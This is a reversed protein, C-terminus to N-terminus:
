AKEGEIELGKFKFTYHLELVYTTFVTDHYIIDSVCHSIAFFLLCITKALVSAYEYIELDWNMDWDFHLARGLSTM